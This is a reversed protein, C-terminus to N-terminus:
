PTKKGLAKAPKEGETKAPAEDILFREWRSADEAGFYSWGGYIASVGALGLSVWSGALLKNQEDLANTYTTKATELGEAAPNLKLSGKTLSAAWALEFDDGNMCSGACDERMIRQGEDFKGQAISQLVLTGAGLGLAVGGSLMGMFRRSNSAAIRARIFDQSPMLDITLRQESEPAVDIDQAWTVFGEKKAEVRHTGGPVQTKFMRGTATTVLDGDIFLSAGIESCSLVVSGGKTALISNFLKKAMGPAETEIATIAMERTDRGIAKAEYVDLLTMTIRLGEGSKSAKGNIMYRADLAGGLEALCSTSDCSLADKLQQQDLMAQVDDGSIVDFLKLKDIGLVTADSLRAAVSEELETVAFGMVAVSERESEAKKETSGSTATPTKASAASRAKSIMRMAQAAADKPKGSFKDVETGDAQVLVMVLKAKGKKGIILSALAHQASFGKALEAFCPSEGKCAIVKSGLKKDKAAAASVGVLDAETSLAAELAKEVQSAAKWDAKKGLAVPPLVVATQAWVTPAFLLAFLSILLRM